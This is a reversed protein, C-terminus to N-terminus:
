KFKDLLEKARQFSMGDPLIFALLGHTYAANGLKVLESSYKRSFETDSLGIEKIAMFSNRQLPIYETWPVTVTHMRGDGGFVPVFDLRAETRHSSATVTMVDVDGLSCAGGTKLVADGPACSASHAFKQRGIANALVEYEYETYNAEGPKPPDFDSTDEQYAPVAMLPAFDFFVSRYYENNFRNFNDRIIDVDYSAYQKPSTDMVWTQAHESIILNCKKNKIFSFDDGYGTKSLLLDVTNEQGLPTYMIRFQVEHDRNSAGFIVDFESNSMERFNNTAKRGKSQLKKEGSRIKRELARKSLREAHGPERSFSLDGAAGCGYGLVTKTEYYPKPKVVSATLTQTRLRTRVNGKSDRYSETWSIVLTGIYTANGMYCRHYRFYVFPNEMLKGSLIDYVSCGGDMGDAFDYEERLALEQSKNYASDFSIEPTTKEILEFTHSDDFLANLSSVQSYALSLLEDAKKLHTQLVTDNSKILRNIVLFIVLIIAVIVGFCVAVTIANETGTADERMSGIVAVAVAVAILAILIIRIIKLTRIKGKLGDAIKMEHRYAKSTERNSAVDVTSKNLLSEFFESVNQSHRQKADQEYYKLPEYFLGNM